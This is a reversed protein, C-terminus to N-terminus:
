AGAMAGLIVSIAEAGPDPVGLLHESPVYASRGSAAADMRATADAGQRAAKAAQQLSGGDRLAGIAPSLADLMTRDGPRAGGYRRMADLGRALAEIAPSGDAMASGAATLMISILVGSSGGM